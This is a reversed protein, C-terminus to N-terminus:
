NSKKQHCKEAQILTEAKLACQFEARITVDKKITELCAKLDKKVTQSQVAKQWRKEIEMEIKRTNANLPAEDWVRLGIMHKMVRTCLNDPEAAIVPNQALMSTVFLTIFGFLKIFM